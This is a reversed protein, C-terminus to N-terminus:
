WAGIRSSRWRISRLFSPERRRYAAYLRSLIDAVSAQADGLELGALMSVFDVVGPEVDLDVHQRRIADPKAAAVEEIDM